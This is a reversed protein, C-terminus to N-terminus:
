HILCELCMAPAGLLGLLVLALATLIRVIAAIM